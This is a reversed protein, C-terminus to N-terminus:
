PFTFDYFETQKQLRAENLTGLSRTALKGAFYDTQIAVVVEYLYKKDSSILPFLMEYKKSKECFKILNKCNSMESETQLWKGIEAPHVLAVVLAM